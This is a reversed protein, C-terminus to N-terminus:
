CVNRCSVGKKIGIDHAAFKVDLKNELIDSVAIMTCSVPSYVINILFLFINDKM